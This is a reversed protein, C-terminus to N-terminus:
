FHRLARIKNNNQYGWHLVADAVDFCPDLDRWPGFLHVVVGVVGVANQPLAVVGGDVFAVVEGGTVGRKCWFLANCGFHDIEGSVLGRFHDLKELLFYM